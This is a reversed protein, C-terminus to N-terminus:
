ALEIAEVPCNAACAGCELCADADIVFQTEGESIAEVPCNSACTGCMICADTIQYAM